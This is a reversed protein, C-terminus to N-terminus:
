LKGSISSNKPTLLAQALSRWGLARATGNEVGAQDVFGLSGTLEEEQPPRNFAEAFLRAVRDRDNTLSPDLLIRKSWDAAWRNVQPDNLLALAQAPVNTSDRRGRTAAPVPFDFVSLFPDLRNRIVHGYVSRRYGDPNAPEGGLTADLKGTLALMSDRIAEAELRRSPFHSLLRNEPDREAAAPSARSEMRFARSTVLTRLFAKISGGQEQFQTALYDLLEPHSPPEGLRGFNDPTTVLGQGFVHLWLRNVMVRPTLPNGPGAMSEALQLRGSQREGPEYAKADLAELFRRPVAEAPQKHDGRVFLPQDFAFGELLGPARTPAALAAEAKRFAALKPAVEPLEALTNPLLGAQLAAGLFDAELDSMEGASWHEICRQWGATYRQALEEVSAPPPDPVPALAVLSAGPPPPQAEGEPSLAGRERWVV